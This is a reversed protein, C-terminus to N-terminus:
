RELTKSKLVGDANEGIAESNKVENNLKDAELEEAILAAEPTAAAAAASTGDTLSLKELRAQHKRGKKHATMVVESHAGVQCMECMFKFKRKKKPGEMKPVGLKVEKGGNKMSTEVKLKKQLELEDDKKKLDQLDEKKVAEDHQDSQSLDKHKLDQKLIPAISAKSEISASINGSKDAKKARLGSKAKHRRGKLHQDLGKKSTATVQCLACSWEERPKKKTSAPSLETITATLPTTAKQKVGSLNQNSPRPLVIVKDKRVESHQGQFPMSDSVGVGYVRGIPFPMREEHPRHDFPNSMLSHRLDFPMPPFPTSNGRGSQFAIERELMLERRVELELERRRAIEEVIIEQRIRQKEFEKQIAERMDNQNQNRFYENRSYDSDPYNPHFVQHSVYSFSRHPPIHTSAGNNKAGSWFEM